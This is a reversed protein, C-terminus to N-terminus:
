FVVAKLHFCVQYSQLHALCCLESMWLTFIRKVLQQHQAPIEEQINQYFCPKVKIFKPLPPFNNAREALSLM